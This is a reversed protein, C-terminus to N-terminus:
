VNGFYNEEPTLAHKQTLQYLLIYSRMGCYCIAFMFRMNIMKKHRTHTYGGSYDKPVPTDIGLAIEADVEEKMQQLSADFLPINGLEARIKEVGVKTLILRPHEQAQLSSASISITLFILCMLCTNTKKKKM